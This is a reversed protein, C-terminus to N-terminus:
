SNQTSIAKYVYCGLKEPHDQVLSNMPLKRLLNIIMFDGGAALTFFLGGALWSLSGTFIAVICPLFGTLIAPMIGGIIYHRVTLPEKCHCYPTLYKWMIGFRISRFGQKAFLAWTLGHILEHVVIGLVLVILLSIGVSKMGPLTFAESIRDPVTSGWRLFYAASFFVLFPLAYVIAQWQAKVVDITLEERVYGELQASSEVTEQQNEM